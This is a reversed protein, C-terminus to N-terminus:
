LSMATGISILALNVMASDRLGWVVMQGLRLGQVRSLVLMLLTINVLYYMMGAAFRLFTEIWVPPLVTRWGVVYGQGAHYMLAAAATALAYMSGNFLVKYFPKNADIDAVVVAAVALMVAAPWEFAFLTLLIITISFSEDKSARGLAFPVPKMESLIALVLLLSYSLVGSELARPIQFMLTEVAHGVVVAGAACVIILILRLQPNM